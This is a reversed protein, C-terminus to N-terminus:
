FKCIDEALTVQQLLGKQIDEGTVIKIQQSVLILLRDGDGKWLQWKNKFMM